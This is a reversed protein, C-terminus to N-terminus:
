MMRTVQPIDKSDLGGPVDTSACKCDPGKCNDSTCKEAAKYNTEAFVSAILLFLLFSKFLM